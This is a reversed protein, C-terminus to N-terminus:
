QFLAGAVGLAFGVAIGAALRPVRSGLLIDGSESLGQGVAWRLLDGAGVASTGQTLHWGSALVLSIVLLVLASTGTLVSARGLGVQEEAPSRVKGATPLQQGVVM